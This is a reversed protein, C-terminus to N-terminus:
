KFALTSFDYVKATFLDVDGNGWDSGFRRENVKKVGLAQLANDLEDWETITSHLERLTDVKNFWESRETYPKGNVKNWRVWITGNGDKEAQVVFGNSIVKDTKM